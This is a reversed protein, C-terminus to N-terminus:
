DPQAPLEPIRRTWDTVQEYADALRFLTAEAFSRGIAQFAVPLGNQSFGCPVSLSPLGLYNIPRTLLTMMAIM